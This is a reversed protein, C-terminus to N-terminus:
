SMTLYNITKDGVVLIGKQYQFLSDGDAIFQETEGLLTQSGMSNKDMVEQVIGDDTPHLILGSTEPPKAFAKGHINRHTDSPLAEVRYQSVLHGDSLHIVFVRVYSKGKIDTKMLFLLSSVAFRVSVSLISENDDLAPIPVTYHEGGPKSFKRLFFMFNNFVRQVGFVSTDLPSAVFWTQNEAIASIQKEVYQGVFNNWEGRYLYGNQARLLHDNSCAFMRRGHFDDCTKVAVESIKPETDYIHIRESLQDRNVVLYRGGFMDFRPSVGVSSFLSLTKIMKQRRMYLVYKGGENAVAYIASGRLKVWVFNGITSLLTDSNVTRKGPARVVQVKRQIQQTNITSCQPCSDREGPHMTKCSYCEVLQDRYETLVEIPPKFREGNGFIRDTINRLDDSLLDPHLASKPYKVGKDFCTIRQLARQPINRYDPHVGGYPHVMILSKIFMAWFAYWDHEKKFHCKQGLDLNYLDPPLYTETGVMCPHQGFQFSDVDIFVMSPKRLDFMKNLDNNDGIIVGGNHLLQTTQFDHIFLNTIFQANFHPNARRFKKSSLMQVVDYGRPIRKMTFGVVNGRGDLALDLPACVNSPLSPGAKVLDQLKAMRKPDPKHYIKVALGNVRIVTAEGGTGLVTKPDIKHTQGGIVIKRIM